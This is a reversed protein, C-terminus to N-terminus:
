GSRITLIINGCYCKSVEQIYYHKLYSYIYCPNPFIQAKKIFQEFSNLFNTRANAHSAYVSFKLVVLQTNHVKRKFLYFASRILTKHELLDFRRFQGFIKAGCHKQIILEKTTHILAHTDEYIEFLTAILEEEQQWVHVTFKGSLEREERPIIWLYFESADLETFKTFCHNISFTYPFNEFFIQQM